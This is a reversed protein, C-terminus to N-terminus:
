VQSSFILTLQLPLKKLILKKKLGLRIAQEYLSYSITHIKDIKKFLLLEYSENSNYPFLSLIKGVFVARCKLM